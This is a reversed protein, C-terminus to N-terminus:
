EHFCCKENGSVICGALQFQRDSTQEPLCQERVFDYYRIVAGPFCCEIHYPLKLGIGRDRKNVDPLGIFSEPKSSGPVFCNCGSGSIIYNLDVAVNDSFPMKNLVM